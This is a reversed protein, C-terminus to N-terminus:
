KRPAFPIVRSAVSEPPRSDGKRRRPSPANPILKYLSAGNRLGFTTAIRDLARWQTPTVDEVQPGGRELASIVARNIGATKALVTTTLEHEDRLKRIVDGVHWPKLVM